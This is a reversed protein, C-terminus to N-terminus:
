QDLAGLGVLGDAHRRDETLELRRETLDRATAASLV